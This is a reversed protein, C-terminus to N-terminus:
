VINNTLCNLPCARPADSATWYFNSVIELAVLLLAILSMFATYNGTWIYWLIGHLWHLSFYHFFIWLLSCVFLFMLFAHMWYHYLKWNWNWWIAKFFSETVVVNHCCREAKSKFALENSYTQLWLSVMQDWGFSGFLVFLGDSICHDLSFLLLEVDIPLSLSHPLRQLSSLSPYPSCHLVWKLAWLQILLSKVLITGWNICEDQEREGRRRGSDRKARFCRCSGRVRGHALHQVGQKREKWIPVNHGVESMEKLPQFRKFHWDM